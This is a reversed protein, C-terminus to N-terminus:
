VHHEARQRLLEIRSSKGDRSCEHFQLCKLRNLPLVRYYIILTKNSAKVSTFINSLVKCKIFSLNQVRGLKLAPNYKNSSKLM